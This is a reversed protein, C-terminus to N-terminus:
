RLVFFVLLVTAAALLAFALKNWSWVRAGGFSCFPMFPIMRYILLNATLAACRYFFENDKLPFAGLAFLLLMGIWEVAAQVGMARSCAKTARPERLYWRGVMPFATGLSNLLLTIAAGGRTFSFRWADGAALCGIGGFLVGSLLVFPYALLTHILRDPHATLQILGPLFLLVNVWLYSLLEQLSSRAKVPGSMWFRSGSAACLLTRLWLLAARGFGLSRAMETLTPTGFGQNELLKWSAANDDIVMATIPGCGLELLREIAAPYLVRGIGLGRYAKVVFGAELYGTKKPGAGFVRVFMAGAVVGDVEAVLASEPKSIGVQELPSHIFARRAIRLLAKEEGPKMDRVVPNEGHM